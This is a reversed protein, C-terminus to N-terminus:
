NKICFTRLKYDYQKLDYEKSITDSSSRLNASEKTVLEGDKFMSAIVNEIASFQEKAEAFANNKDKFPAPNLFLRFGRSDDSKKERFNFEFFTFKNGPIKYNFDIKELEM